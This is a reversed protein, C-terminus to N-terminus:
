LNRRLRCVRSPDVTLLLYQDYWDRCGPGRCVACSYDDCSRDSLIVCGYRGNRRGSHDEQHVGGSCCGDNRRTSDVIDDDAGIDRGGDGSGRSGGGLGDGGAVSSTCEGVDEGFDVAIFPCVYTGAEVALLNGYTRSDGVGVAAGLALGEATAAGAENICGYITRIFEDRL